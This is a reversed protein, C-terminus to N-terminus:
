AGLAARTLAAEDPGVFAPARRAADLAAFLEGISARAPPLHSGFVAQPELERLKGLGRAFAGDDMTSVWPADVQTWVSMGARLSDSSLEDATPALEPLVAGFCDSSFLSRTRTDFLAMTEPADYVPPAVACLERDALSLRQGPNMLYVREKAIPARLGLKGMGLFNTIVRAHPARALVADLCGVHDPDTHTLFVFAIRKPDIVRALQEFTPGALATVGADVLVPERGDILYTNAPLVGLGPIPLQASILFTDSAIRRPSEVLPTEM